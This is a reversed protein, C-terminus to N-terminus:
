TGPEPITFPRLALTGGEKVTAIFYSGPPLDIEGLDKVLQAPRGDPGARYIGIREV